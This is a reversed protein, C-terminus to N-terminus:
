GKLMEVSSWTGKFNRIIFSSLLIDFDVPTKNSSKYTLINPFLYKERLHVGESQWIYGWPHMYGLNPVGPKVWHKL